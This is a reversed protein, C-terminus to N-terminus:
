FFLVVRSMFGGKFYDGKVYGCEREEANIRSMLTVCWGLAVAVECVVM